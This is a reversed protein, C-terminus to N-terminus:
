SSWRPPDIKQGALYREINGNFWLYTPVVDKEWKFDGKMKDYLPMGYQDKPIEEPKM